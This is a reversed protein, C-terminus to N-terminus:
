EETEAPAFFVLVELREEIDAFRHAVRRPVYVITGPEVAYGDEGVQLRARGALMVYLEDQAHPTQEDAEGAELVYLGASMSPRRLFELYPQHGQRQLEALDQVAFAEDRDPQRGSGTHSDM